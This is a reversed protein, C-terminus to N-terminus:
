IGHEELITRIDEVDKEHRIIKAAWFDANIAKSIIENQEPTLRILLESASSATFLVWPSIRGTSIWLVAQAPAIERFFNYWQGGTSVAWEEMLMLNRELASIPSENKNMENIYQRYLIDKTWEDIKIELKILFDIFSMLNVPNINVVYKGFDVFAKYFHSKRFHEHSPSEKHGMRTRFFREYAIYGFRVPKDHKQAHRIKQTCQHAFLTTEKKFEKNCFECAYIIPKKDCKHRSLGAKTLIKGCGCVIDNTM